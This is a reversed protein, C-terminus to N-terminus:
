GAGWQSIINRFARVGRAIDPAQTLATVVAIKRAGAELVQGINTEKIGGMVTFAIRLLPAMTSIAEPGLYREVGEKTGTPFIPGINVYDAGEDQARLAEEINHSSVGILLDPAMARAARVPFDDQGLHVGDAGVGVAVDVRDNIILLMGAHATRKRFTEALRFFDRQCLEKERLQVIRAGGEILAELVELDSRGSSLRECTVPYIDIKEFRGRREDRGM